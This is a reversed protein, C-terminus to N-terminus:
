DMIDGEDLLVGLGLWGCGLDFSRALYVDDGGEDVLVPLLERASRATLRGADILGLLGALAALM